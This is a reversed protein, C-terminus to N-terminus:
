TNFEEAQEYKSIASTEIACSRCFAPAADAFDWAM